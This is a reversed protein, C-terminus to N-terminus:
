GYVTRYLFFIKKMPLFLLYKFYVHFIRKEVLHVICEWIFVIVSLISLLITFRYIRFTLLITSNHHVKIVDQDSKFPILAGFFKIFINKTKNFVSFQEINVEVKNLNINEEKEIVDNQDLSVKTTILPVLGALKSYYKRELTNKETKLKDLIDDLKKMDLRRKGKNIEKELDKKEEEMFDKLEMNENNNKEESEVLSNVM